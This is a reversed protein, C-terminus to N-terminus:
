RSSKDLLRFCVRSASLSFINAINVSVVEEDTLETAQVPMVYLFACMMVLFLKKM